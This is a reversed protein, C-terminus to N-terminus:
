KEVVKEFHGDDLALCIDCADLEGAKRSNRHLMKISCTRCSFKGFKFRHFQGDREVIINIKDAM